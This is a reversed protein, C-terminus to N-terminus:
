KRKCSRKNRQKKNRRYSKGGSSSAKKEAREEKAKIDKLSIFPTGWRNPNMTLLTAVALFSGISLIIIEKKDEM